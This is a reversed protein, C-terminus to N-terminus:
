FWFAADQVFWEFGMLCWFYSVGCFGGFERLLLVGFDGFELFM